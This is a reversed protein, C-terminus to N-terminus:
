RNSRLKEGNIAFLSLGVMGSQFALLGCNGTGVAGGRTIARRSRSHTPKILLGCSLYSYTDDVCTLFANSSPTQFVLQLSNQEMGNAYAVSVFDNM